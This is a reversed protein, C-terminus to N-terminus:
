KQHSSFRGNIFQGSLRALNEISKKFKSFNSVDGLRRDFFEETQKFDVCNHSLSAVLTASYISALTARKTYFNLDTSKDGTSRWIKDVTGYLAKAGLRFNTPKSLFLITRNVFEKNATEYRLRSLALERIKLHVPMFDEIKAERMMKEDLSKSYILFVDNLGLPFMEYLVAKDIGLEEAALSMSKESWGDFSAHSIFSDLFKITETDLSM